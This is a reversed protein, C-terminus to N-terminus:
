FARTYQIVLFGDGGLGNKTSDGSGGGGGGHGATGGHGTVGTNARGAGGGGGSPGIQQGDEDEFLSDEGGDGGDGTAPIGNTGCGSGGGGGGNTGNGGDALLTGAYPSGEGQGTGLRNAGGDGGSGDDQNGAGPSGGNAGGGGAGANGHVNSPSDGGPGGPGEPGACGGGGAGGSVTFAGGPDGGNGGPYRNWSGSATWSGGNNTFGPSDGPSAFVLCPTGIWTAGPGPSTPSGRLGGGIGIGIPVDTGPTFPLDIDWAYEGGGGGAGGSSPPNGGADGGAGFCMFKSPHGFDDPVRWSTPGAARAAPTRIIITVLEGAACSVGRPIDTFNNTDDNVRVDPFSRFTLAVNTVGAEDTVHSLEIDDQDLRMATMFSIQKVSSVALPPLASNVTITEGYPGPAAGTIRRFYKTGDHLEIAIHERGKVPLGLYSLGTFDVELTVDSDSNAERLILDDNFTPVWVPGRRGSLVYLRDRLAGHGSHGKIQLAFDQTTVGFNAPDVATRLGTSNDLSTWLREYGYNIDDAENSRLDWVPLGNYFSPMWVGSWSEGGQQIFRIPGTMVRSTKRGQTPPDSLYARRLPYIQAENKAFNSGFYGDTLEIHDDSVTAVTVVSFTRANKGLVLVLAGPALGLHTTNCYLEMDDTALPQKLRVGLPWIPLM